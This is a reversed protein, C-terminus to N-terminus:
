PMRHPQEVVKALKTDQVSSGDVIPGHMGKKRPKLSPICTTDQALHKMACTMVLGQDM